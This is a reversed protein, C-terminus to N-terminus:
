GMEHWQDREIRGQFCWFFEPKRIEEPPISLSWLCSIAHTFVQGYNSKNCCIGRFSIKSPHDRESKKRLLKSLADLYSGRFISYIKFFVAVTAWFSRQLEFSVFVWQCNIMKKLFFFSLRVLCFCGNASTRWFWHELLKSLSVVKNFLSELVPTKRHINRFKYSRMSQYFVDPQQKESSM